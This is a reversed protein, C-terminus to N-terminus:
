KLLLLKGTKNLGTSEFRYFYVGSAYHSGNFRVAHVGASVPGDVLTAVKQGNISYINLKVSSPSKISYSITTAQNAPNPSVSVFEENTISNSSDPTPEGPEPQISIFKDEFEWPHYEIGAAYYATRLIDQGQNIGAAKDAYKKAIDKKEMFTGYIYAIRSLLEVEMPTGPYVDALQSFSDIAEQYRGESVLMDCLIYELTFKYYTQANALENQITERLKAFNIKKKENVQFISKIAMRKTIISKSTTIIDYYNNLVENADGIKTRVM